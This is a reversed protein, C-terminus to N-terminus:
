LYGLCDHWDHVGVDFPKVHNHSAHAAHELAVGIQTVPEDLSCLGSGGALFSAGGGGGLFDLFPVLVTM